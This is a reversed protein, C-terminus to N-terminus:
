EIFMKIKKTKTRTKLWETIQNIQESSPQKDFSLYAIYLPESKNNDVHYLTSKQLSFSVLNKNLAKIEKSIDEVSVEMKKYSLVEAELLAIKKDKDKIVEENKRYLEELLGTKVSAIDIDKNAKLGQKVILETGELKYMPLKSKITEIINEELPEGVLFVEIKAPLTETNIKKDAVFTNAFTFQDNIFASINKEQITKTVITYAMYISPVVAVLVILTIYRKVRKETEPDIFSYKQFKLFRVIFFTSFSIFVANIFFLYFAGTFFYLNGSALGYGATCLPPMLATAIAVGPIANGKEKSSGAVIGAMGGFLAIFVDWITPTTRSLLESRAEDLPTILFYTTSTAVSIAVMILLNKGAKKILDFDNIGVALGIGMIPGMLPSILMAGIIVATSNVNLGISAIFIAFVLVWVNLGRFEVGRKISKIIELENEKDEELSFREQLFDKIDRLIKGM